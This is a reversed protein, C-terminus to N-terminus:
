KVEVDDDLGLERLAVKTEEAKQESIGDVQSVEFDIKIKLGKTTAFRTLVKTYFNMWKQPPIEGTWMLQTAKTNAPIGRGTVPVEVVHPTPTATSPTSPQDPQYGVTPENVVKAVPQEVPKPAEKSYRARM